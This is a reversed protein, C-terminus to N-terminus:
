RAKRVYINGSMTTLRIEPGGGNIEAVLTSRMSPAIAPDALVAREYAEVAKESSPPPPAFDELKERIIVRARDEAELRNATRPQIKMDDFDTLIEGWSTKMHLTAKSKPLLAVDIPGSASLSVPKDPDLAGFRGEIGGFQSNAVVGGSVNDLYIWGGTASVEIDGTVNAVHVGGNSRITVNSQIDRVSVSDAFHSNIEVAAGHPVQVRMEVSGGFSRTNTSIVNRDTWMELGTEGHTLKRLGEARPDPEKTAEAFTAGSELNRARVRVTDSKTGTVFVRGSMVRIEVIRNDKTEFVAWAEDVAAAPRVTLVCLVFTAFVLVWGLRVSWTRASPESITKIRKTANM